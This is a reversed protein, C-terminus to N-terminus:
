GEETKQAQRRQRVGTMVAALGSGLLLMTTPEPIPRAMLAFQEVDPNVSNIDVRLLVNTGLPDTTLVEQFASDLIAFSFQDPVGGSFAPPSLTLRFGLMNGPTFEQLFDNLFGSDNLTVTGANLSGSAGGITQM